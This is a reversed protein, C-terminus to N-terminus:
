VWCCFLDNLFEAAFRLDVGCVEGGLGGYLGEYGFDEGVAVVDVDEEVAAAYLSPMGGVFEWVLVPVFHQLDVQAGDECEASVHARV